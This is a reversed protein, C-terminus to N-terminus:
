KKLRLCSKCSSRYYPAGTKKSVGGSPTFDATSKIENCTKCTRIAVCTANSDEDSSEEDCYNQPPSNPPSAYIIPPELELPESCFRFQDPIKNNACTRVTGSGSTFVVRKLPEWQFVATTASDVFSEDVDLEVVVRSRSM